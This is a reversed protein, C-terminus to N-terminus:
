IIDGVRPDFIIFYCKIFFENLYFFSWTLFSHFIKFTALIHIFLEDRKFVPIYRCLPFGLALLLTHATSSWCGNSNCWQFSRVRWPPTFQSSKWVWSVSVKVWKDRKWTWPDLTAISSPSIGSFSLSNSLASCTLFQHFSSTQRVWWHRVARSAATIFEEQQYM